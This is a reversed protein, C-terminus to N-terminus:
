PGRWKDNIVVQPKGDHEIVFPTTWSTLEDRDKRWLDDGTTKNFAVVFDAGEHDWNVVLTKGHLAPSAGEGFGNRTQMDGLDKEWKVNGQMDCCYLGRSGFFGFLHEGDTVCSASAFGHDQHHGEHPLTEKVVKRWREKGTKKDICLIAFQQVEAPATGRGFGGGGGRRGRRGEGAPPPPPDAPPSQVFSGENGSDASAGRPPPPAAPGPQGPVAAPSGDTKKGTGIATTIFVSDGWVIPSSTGSGPIEYKWQVHESESWKLPPTAGPATGNRQPGRWAPWDTDAAIATAAAAAFCVIVLPAKM